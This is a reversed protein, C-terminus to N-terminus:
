KKYYHQSFVQYLEDCRQKDMAPVGKLRYEIDTEKYLDVAMTHYPLFEVKEVNKFKQCHKALKIVYEENDNFGPVVVQRLWVKSDSKALAKIFPNIKEINQLTLEEFKDADTHKVDLLVLDTYKLLKDFDGGYSASSTDLCTHIGNQKCLKFFETLFEWQLLPEGGSVTVGGKNVYYTKYRSIISLLEHPTMEKGGEKQLFKPNHCYACRLLCGQMFVVTRIGPGDLLGMTELKAIRGKIM